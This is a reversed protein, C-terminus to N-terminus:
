AQSVQRRSTGYYPLSVIRLNRTHHNSTVKTISTEPHKNERPLGVGIGHIGVAVGCGGVGVSPLGVVAVAVAPVCGAALGVRRLVESTAVGEAVAGAGVAVAVSAGEPCAAPCSM